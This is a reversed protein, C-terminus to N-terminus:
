RPGLRRGGEPALWYMVHVAFGPWPGGLSLGQEPLEFGMIASSVTIALTRSVSVQDPPIFVDM